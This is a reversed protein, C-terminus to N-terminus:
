GGSFRGPNGALRQYNRTPNALFRAAPDLCRYFHSSRRHDHGIHRGSNTRAMVQLKPEPSIIAGYRTTFCIPAVRNRRFSDRDSPM